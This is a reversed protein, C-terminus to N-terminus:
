HKKYYASRFGLDTCSIARPDAFYTCFVGALTGNRWGGGRSPFYEGDTSDVYLYANPEGNYLALAKLQESDRETDMEVDDWCSGGYDQSVDEDTTIVIGDDVSVYIANDEDDLVPLWEGSAESLDIDTAANNDKAAQLMGDKIRMGRVMEWINGCLDHVGDPQHNHTWTAPGSGALTKGTEYIAGFEKQDAHYKGRATNGHPLTGNKLSVNAVLGWEAATMMHWGDGKSFCAKAADDNTINTWMKQFPLSYPKGNIECNPYVSIYIEDYVDGDIVFAPHPKDSGGFLEKNSIRSFKRMISPIGANDYIVVTEEKVGDTRVVEQQASVKLQIECNKKDEGNDCFLSKILSENLYDCGTAEFLIEKNWGMGGDTKKIKIDAM